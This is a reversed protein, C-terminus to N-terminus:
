SESKGAPLYQTYHSCSESFLSDFNEVASACLVHVESGCSLRNVLGRVLKTCAVDVPGVEEKLLRLATTVIKQLDKFKETGLLIKQALSIRLCLEDM